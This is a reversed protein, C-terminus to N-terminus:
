LQDDGFHAGEPEDVVIFDYLRPAPWKNEWARQQFEPNKLLCAIADERTPGWGTPDLVLNRLRHRLAGFALATKFSLLLIRTVWAWPLSAGYLGVWKGTDQREHHQFDFCFNTRNRM